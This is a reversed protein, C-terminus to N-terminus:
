LGALNTRNGILEQPQSLPTPATWLWLAEPVKVHVTLNVVHKPIMLVNEQWMFESCHCFIM